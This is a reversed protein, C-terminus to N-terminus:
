YVYSDSCTYIYLDPNTLRDETLLLLLLFLLLIYGVSLFRWGLAVRSFFVSFLLCFLISCMIFLLGAFLARRM